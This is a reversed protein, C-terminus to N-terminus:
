TMNNNKLDLNQMHTFAQSIQRESSPKNQKVCHDGTGNMKRCIVNNEEEKHSFLVINYIYVV